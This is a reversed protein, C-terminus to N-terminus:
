VYVSRKVYLRLYISCIVWAEWYLHVCNCYLNATIESAGLINGFVIVKVTSSAFKQYDEVEKFSSAAEVLLQELLELLTATLSTSASPTSSSDGAALCLQLSGLLVSTTKM